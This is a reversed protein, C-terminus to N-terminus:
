SRRASVVFAVYFTIIFAWILLASIIGPPADLMLAISTAVAYVVGARGTIAWSREKIAKEREDGVGIILRSATSAESGLRQARTGAIAVLLIGGAYGSLMGWAVDHDGEPLTAFMVAIVGLIVTSAALLQMGKGIRPAQRHQETSM